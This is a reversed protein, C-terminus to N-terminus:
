ISQEFRMAREDFKNPRATGSRVGGQRERVREEKQAYSTSAEGTQRFTKFPSFTKSFAPVKQFVV